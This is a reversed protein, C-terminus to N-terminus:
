LPSGMNSGLEIEYMSWHKMTAITFNKTGIHESSSGDNLVGIDINVPCMNPAVRPLLESLHVTYFYSLMQVQVVTNACDYDGPNDVAAAASPTM